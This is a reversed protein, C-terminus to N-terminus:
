LGRRGGERGGWERESDFNVITILLIVDFLKFPLFDRGFRHLDELGFSLLVWTYYFHRAASRLVGPKKEPLLFRYVGFSDRPLVFM